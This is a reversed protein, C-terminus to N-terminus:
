MDAQFKNPYHVTGPVLGSNVISMILWKKHM